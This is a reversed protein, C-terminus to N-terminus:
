SYLLANVADVTKRTHAPKWLKWWPEVPAAKEPFPPRQLWKEDVSEKPFRPGVMARYVIKPESWAYARKGYLAFARVPVDVHCHPRRLGYTFLIRGGAPVTENYLPGSLSIRQSTNPHHALVEQPGVSWAVGIATVTTPRAGNNQISFLLWFLKESDADANDRHSGSGGASGIGGENGLGLPEDLAVSPPAVADFAGTKAEPGYLVLKVDLLVRDRWERRVTFLFAIFGTAAGIWMLIGAADM